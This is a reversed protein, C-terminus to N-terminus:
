PSEFLRIIEEVQQKFSLHTTDMLIADPAQRLPALARGQDRRDREEIESMVEELTPAEAAAPLELLRRRARVKLDAVLFLKLQAEPFVVTGIDRGEVVAGGSAKGIARQMEVLRQRVAGVECVPTVALTVEPSRILHTVDEGDLIVHQCGEAQTLAVQAGKAIRGIGHQDDLPCNERLVKLAIARYMAGTDLHLFRLRRAVERATTTKGAGAPGDIAIIRLKGRYPPAGQNV